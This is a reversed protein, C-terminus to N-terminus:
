EAVREWKWEGEIARGSESEREPEGAREREGM